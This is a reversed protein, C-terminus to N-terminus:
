FAVTGQAGISLPARAHGPSPAVHLSAIAANL